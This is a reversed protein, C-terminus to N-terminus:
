GAYAGRHAPPLLSAIRRMLADTLRASESRAIRGETPELHFPEGITVSVRPRRLWWWAGRIQETGTIAVPVLPAGSHLSLIAAGPKAPLLIGDHSRKGEPFLALVRSQSLLDEAQRMVDRKQQLSGGRAVPFMGGHRMIMGVFPIRFLEEKALFTIPRPFALMLLVPDALHIHNAILILAGDAPVRQRGTVTWRLLLRYVVRLFAVVIRADLKV